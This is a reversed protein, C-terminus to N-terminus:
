ETNIFGPMLTCANDNYCVGRIVNNCLHAIVVVAPVIYILKKISPNTSQNLGFQKVDETLMQVDGHYLQM